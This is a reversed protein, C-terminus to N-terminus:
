SSPQQGPGVHRLTIELAFSFSYMLVLPGHNPQLQNRKATFRRATLALAQCLFLHRQGKPRDDSSDVLVIRINSITIPMIRILPAPHVPTLVKLPRPVDDYTMRTKPMKRAARPISEEKTGEARHNSLEFYAAIPDSSDHNTLPRSVSRFAILPSRNRIKWFVLQRLAPHATIRTVSRVGRQGGSLM